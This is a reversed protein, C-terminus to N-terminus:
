GALSLAPRFDEALEAPTVWASAGDSLARLEICGAVTSGELAGFREGTAHHYYTRGTATTDITSM